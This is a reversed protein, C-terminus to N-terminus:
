IYIKSVFFNKQNKKNVGLHNSHIIVANNM